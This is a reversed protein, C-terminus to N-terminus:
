VQTERPTEASCKSYSSFSGVTNLGLFIPGGHIQLCLPSPLYDVLAPGWPPPWVSGCSNAWLRCPRGARKTVPTFFLIRTETIAEANQFSGMGQWETM